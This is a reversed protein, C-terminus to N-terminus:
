TKPVSNQLQSSNTFNRFEIKGLIPEMAPGFVTRGLIKKKRKYFTARNRPKRARLVKCKRNLTISFSEEHSVRKITKVPRVSDAQPQTNRGDKRGKAVVVAISHRHLLYTESIGYQRRTDSGVVFVRFNLLRVRSAAYNRLVRRTRMHRVTFTERDFRKIHKDRTRSIRRYSEM